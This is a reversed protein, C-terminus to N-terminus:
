RRTARREMFRAPRRSSSEAPPVVSVRQTVSDSAIGIGRVRERKPMGFYYFPIAQEIPHYLQKM